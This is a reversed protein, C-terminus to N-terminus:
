SRLHEDLFTLIQQWSDENARANGEATGGLAFLDGTVPHVM